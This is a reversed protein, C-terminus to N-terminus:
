FRYQGGIKFALGRTPYGLYREYENNLLNNIDIFASARKTFLYKASIGVDTFGDLKLYGFDVNAPARIGGISTLYASVILKEKINHSTFAKFIFSPKHWPKDLSETSYGNIEVSAGYTSTSTPMYALKSKFTIVNVADTDYDLSYRSSDSSSPTFFPMGNVDRYSVSGEILMNKWPNGKIGGGFEIANESFSLVLSDDLFQNEGIMDRLTNMSQGGSLIGYVVWQDALDYEMRIDPYISTKSSEAIKGSSVILGANLRLLEKKYSVWPKINILSRDYDTGSKYSASSADLDLGTSFVKGIKYNFAGALELVDEKNFESPSIQQNVTSFIPRLGYNIDESGGSLNIGIGFDSFSAENPNDPFNTSATSGYFNYEKRSYVISPTVSISPLKYDGSLEVGAISNGSNDGKVPGSNFSEYFLKARSDFTGFSQFLGAELLPSNFNGYGLKVYNQYEALPYADRVSQFPVDSKYDPWEFSPEQIEFTLNLPDNSFTKPESRVFIKDAQPLTIKKDKEIVVEGTLIEGQNRTSDTQAMSQIFGLLLIGTVIIRM